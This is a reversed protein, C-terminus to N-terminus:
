ISASGGMFLSPFHEREQSRPPDIIHSPCFSATHRWLRPVWFYYLKKRTSTCEGRPVLWRAKPSGPLWVSLSCALASGVAWSLDWATALMMGRCTFSDGKLHNPGWGDEWCALQWWMFCFCATGVSVPGFQLNTFSFLHNSNIKSLLYQLWKNPLLVYSFYVHM